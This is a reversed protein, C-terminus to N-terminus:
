QLPVDAVTIFGYDQLITQGETSQVFDLFDAALAGNQADGLPAIYYNALVNLEDPIEVQGVPSNQAGVVDSAYVIGADAEGLSIRTLVARVTLEYSAVNDLVQRRYDPGLETAAANQLFAQAYRGAPVEEAALVVRLGPRALDQLSSVPSEDDPPHIIVLRNAVFPQVATEAVRGSAVAVEMQQLNASAFIDAPAGGAIQQALQQSGAFNFVLEGGPHRERFRQGLAEFANTLSAAASIILKGESSSPNDGTTTATSSAGSCGTALLLVLLVILQRSNMGKKDFKFGAGGNATPHFLNTM